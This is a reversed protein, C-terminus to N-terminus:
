TKTEATNVLMIFRVKTYMEPSDMPGFGGYWFEVAVMMVRKSLLLYSLDLTCFAIAQSFAKMSYM